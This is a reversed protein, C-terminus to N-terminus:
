KFNIPSFGSFDSGETIWVFRWKKGISQKIGRFQAPPNIAEEEEEEEAEEEKKKESERQDRRREEPPAAASGDRVTGSEEAKERKEPSLNLFVLLNLDNQMENSNPRSEDREM